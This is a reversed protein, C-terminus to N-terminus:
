QAPRGECSPKSGRHHVPILITRCHPCRCNDPLKYKPAIKNLFTDRDHGNVGNLYFPMLDKRIRFVEHKSNKKAEEECALCRKSDNLDPRESVTPFGVPDWQHEEICKPCRDKDIPIEFPVKGHKTCCWWSAHNFGHCVPCTKSSWEPHSTLDNATCNENGCRNRIMKGCGPCIKETRPLGSINERCDSNGCTVVISTHKSHIEKFAQNELFRRDIHFLEKYEQSGYMRYYEDINRIHEPPNFLDEYYIWIRSGEYDEVQSRVALIQAASAELFRRLSAPNGEPWILGQPIMILAIGQRQPNPTRKEFVRQRSRVLQERVLDEAKDPPVELVYHKGQLKPEEDIERRLLEALKKRKEEASTDAQVLSRSEDLVKPLTKKLWKMVDDHLSGLNDLTRQSDSDLAQYKGEAWLKRTDEFYRSAKDRNDDLFKEIEQRARALLIRRLNDVFSEDGVAQSLLDHQLRLSQVLDTEPRRSQLWQLRRPAFEREQESLGQQLEAFRMSRVIPMALLSETESRRLLTYLARRQLAQDTTLQAEPALLDLKLARPLQQEYDRYAQSDRLFPISQSIDPNERTLQDFILARLEGLERNREELRERPEYRLEGGEMQLLGRVEAVIKQTAQNAVAFGLDNWEKLIREAEPAVEEEAKPVSEKAEPTPAKGRPADTAMEVAVKGLLQRVKDSYLEQLERDSRLIEVVKDFVTEKLDVERLGVMISTVTSFCHTRRRSQEEHSDASLTNSAIALTKEQITRQLQGLISNAIQRTAIKISDAGAFGDGSCLFIRAFPEEGLVPVHIPPISEYEADFPIQQDKLYALERLCAYSNQYIRGGSDVDQFVEPLLVYAYVRPRRLQRRAVYAVDILMGAGTGGAISSVIVVRKDESLRSPDVETGLENLKVRIMREIVADNEFFGLRGLVRLQSAGNAEVESTPIKVKARDPFWKLLNEWALGGNQGRDINRLREQLKEPDLYFFEEDQLKAFQSPDGTMLASRDFDFALFSAPVREEEPLKRWQLKLARVTLVGTGGLGIVLTAISM